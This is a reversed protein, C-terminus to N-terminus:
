PNKNWYIRGPDTASTVLTGSSVPIQAWTTVQVHLDAMLQNLTTGGHRFVFRPNVATKNTVVSESLMWWDNAAVSGSAGTGAAGCTLLLADAAHTIGSLHMSTGAYPYSASTRAVMYVNAAYDSVHYLAFASNPGVYNTSATDNDAPDRYLVRKQVATFNNPLDLNGNLEATTHWYVNGAGTIRNLDAPLYGDQEEAYGAMALGLQRERNKCSTTQASRKVMSIAPLLLSALVAIISIVALLEILTFAPRNPRM